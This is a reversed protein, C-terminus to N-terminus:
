GNKTIYMDVSFSYINTFKKIILMTSKGIVIYKIEIQGDSSNTIKENKIYM